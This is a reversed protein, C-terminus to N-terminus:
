RKHESRLLMSPVGQPVNARTSEPHYFCGLIGGHHRCKHQDPQPAHGVETVCANMLACRCCCLDLSWSVSSHKSLSAAFIRSVKVTRVCQELM